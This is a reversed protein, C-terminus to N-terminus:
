DLKVELISAAGSISENSIFMRGSPTFCIGEPQEFEEPDLLHMKKIKGSRDIILLKQFEADLVYVDNNLPSFSLDSPRILIRPNNTKLVDFIPDDFQIKLVPAPNLKNTKPNFSYIGRYGGSNDLNKEKVALWLDGDKNAALGEINNRYEFELQISEANEQAELNKINFLEGNSEAVWFEGNLSTLAEYDGSGAFKYEQIIKSVSLDYIFIIGDEDQICAIKEDGMWHIGSIEELEEPLEWKNVIEYSKTADDYDYDNLQYITYIVGALVLTLAIIGIAWKKM